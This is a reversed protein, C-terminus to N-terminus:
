ICEFENYFSDAGGDCDVSYILKEDEVYSITTNFM